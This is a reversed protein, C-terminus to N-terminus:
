WFKLQILIMRDFMKDPLIKRLLLMTTSGRGAVYRAKPWHANIAECITKAIVIPKSGIDDFYKLMRVQKVALEKYVTQGSVKLLNERSINNWETKIGGPEILIVDIGFQKLEMRMCDSLGEVAFKSSHYWSGHPEAIKGAISTINIIKGFHQKRMHPIVLQSLRALGFVNVEFQYKAESMPTDEISGYSGYGANNVLVDIRGEASLIIGVGAVMSADDAVDMRITKGGLKKIDDMMELRRAAAYVTFGKKLLLLVTEKGIGSSAGTILVVKKM